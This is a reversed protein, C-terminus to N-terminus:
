VLMNKKGFEQLSFCTSITKKDKEGVNGTAILGGDVLGNRLSLILACDLYTVSTQSKVEAVLVKCHSDVISYCHEFCNKGMQGNAIIFGWLHHSTKM